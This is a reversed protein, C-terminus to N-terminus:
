NTGRRMADQLTVANVSTRVSRTFGSANRREAGCRLSQEAQTLIADWQMTCLNRRHGKNQREKDFWKSTRTERRLAIITAIVNSCVRSHVHQRTARTPVSYRAHPQNRTSRSAVCILCMHILRGRLGPMTAVNRRPASCGEGLLKVLLTLGPVLCSQMIRRSLWRRCRLLM